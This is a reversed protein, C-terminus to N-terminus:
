LFSLKIESNPTSSIFLFVSNIRRLGLEDIRESSLSLIFSEVPSSKM